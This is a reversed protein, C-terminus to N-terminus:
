KAVREATEYDMDVLMEETFELEGTFLLWITKADDPLISVEEAESFPDGVFVRLELETEEDEFEAEWKVEGDELWIAITGIKLAHAALLDTNIGTDLEERTLRVAEGVRNASSDRVFDGLVSVSSMPLDDFDYIEDLLEPKKDLANWESNGYVITTGDETTVAYFNEPNGVWDSVKITLEEIDFGDELEAYFFGSMKDLVVTASAEIDGQKAIVEVQSSLPEVFGAIFRTEAFVPTILEPKEVINDYKFFYEKPRRNIDRYKLVIRYTEGDKLKSTISKESDATKSGLVIDFRGQLKGDQDREGNIRGDAEAIREGDLDYLAVYLEEGADGSGTLEIYTASNGLTVSGDETLSDTIHEGGGAVPTINDVIIDNQSNKRGVWITGNWTGTHNGTCENTDHCIDNFTMTIKAPQNSTFYGPEPTIAFTYTESYGNLETIKPSITFGEISLATIKCKESFTFKIYKTDRNNYTGDPVVAGNQETSGTAPGEVVTGIGNDYHIAQSKSGKNGEVEISVTYEKRDCSENADDSLYLNCKATEPEAKSVNKDSVGGVSLTIKEDQWNDSFTLRLLVNKGDNHPAVNVDIIRFQANGGIELTINASTEPLIYEYNGVDEGEARSLVSTFEAKIDDDTAESTSDKKSLQYTYADPNQNQVLKSQGEDPTLIVELVKIEFQAEGGKELKVNASTEPLIYDYKGVDEGEARSLVGKFEAKINEDTAESTSDKKSLQYTYAEPDKAKWVKNQGEDPTLIVELVKIEFKSATDLTLEINNGSEPKVYDYLGVNEGSQRKLSGLQIRILSEETNNNWELTYTFETPDKAQWVKNQEADPKMTVALKAISFDCSAGEIIEYNSEDKLTATATYSGANTESGSVTIEGKDPTGTPCHETGDYTFETDAWTVTVRAKAISFDCSAGEIIEYNSEDKLTATATYSGANTESGSVTIEGKDPTGTPCHETGDYTFETDAWTVTVRAKAISFDCTEGASIYYHENDGLVATATYSGASTGSGSVSVSIGEPAIATPQQPQGNYFLETNTWTIVVPTKETETGGGPNEACGILSTGFVSICVALLILLIIAKRM